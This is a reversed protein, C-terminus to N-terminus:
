LGMTNYAVPDGEECEAVTELGLTIFNMIKEANTFDIEFATYQVDMAGIIREYYPLITGNREYFLGVVAINNKKLATRVEKNTPPLATECKDTGDLKPPKRDGPRRLIRTSWQDTALIIIKRVIYGDNDVNGKSWGISKDAAAFTLATLSSESHQTREDVEPATSSSGWKQKIKGFSDGFKSPDSSLQQMVVYCDEEEIERPDARGQEDTLGASYPYDSFAVLAYESGPYRENVCTSVDRAIESFLEIQKYFTFTADYIFVIQLRIDREQDCVQNVFQSTNATCLSVATVLQLIAFKLSKLDM